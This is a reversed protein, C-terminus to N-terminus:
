DHSSHPLTEKLCVIANKKKLQINEFLIIFFLNTHFYSHLCGSNADGTQYTDESYYPSSFIRVLIDIYIYHIPSAMKYITVSIQLHLHQISPAFAVQCFCVSLSEKWVIVTQNEGKIERKNEVVNIAM